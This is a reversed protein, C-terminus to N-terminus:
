GAGYIFGFRLNLWDTLLCWFGQGPAGVQTSRPNRKLGSAPCLTRNNSMYCGTTPVCSIIIKKLTFITKWWKKVLSLSSGEKVWNRLAYLQFFFFLFGTIIGTVWNQDLSRLFNCKLSDLKVFEWPHPPLAHEPGGLSNTGGASVNMGAARFTCMRWSFWKMQYKWISGFVRYKMYSILTCWSQSILISEM